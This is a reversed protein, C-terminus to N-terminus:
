SGCQLVAAQTELVENQWEKGLVCNKNKSVETLKIAKIRARIKDNGYRSRTEAADAGASAVYGIILVRDGPKFEATDKVKPIRSLGVILCLGTGDGILLEDDLKYRDKPAFPVVYGQIWVNTLKHPTKNCFLIKWQCFAVGDQKVKEANQLQVILVKFAPFTFIISGSM